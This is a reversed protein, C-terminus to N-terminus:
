YAALRRVAEALGLALSTTDVVWPAGDARAEIRLRLQGEDLITMAMLEGGCWFEATGNSAEEAGAVTVHVDAAAM